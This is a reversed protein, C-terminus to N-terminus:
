SKKILQNKIVQEFKNKRTPKKIRKLSKEILGDKIISILNIIDYNQYLLLYLLLVM